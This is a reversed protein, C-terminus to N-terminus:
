ATSLLLDHHPTLEIVAENLTTADLEYINAYGERALRAHATEFEALQKEIAAAPIQRDLRALNNAFYTDRGLNFVIAVTPVRVSRAMRLLPRRSRYQLSTADIVTLRSRRLRERAIHRLISFAEGSVSQDSEDDVILARCRDSSIIETPRFHRSAFTSKGAGSPGILLVLSPDPISLRYM